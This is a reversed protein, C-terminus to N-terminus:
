MAGLLKWPLVEPPQDCVLTRNVEERALGLLRLHIGHIWTGQLSGPVWSYMDGWQRSAVIARLPTGPVFNWTAEQSGLGLSM